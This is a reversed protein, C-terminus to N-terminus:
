TAEPSVGLTRSSLALAALETAMLAQSAAVIEVSKGFKASMGGRVKKFMIKGHRKDMPLPVATGVLSLTDPCDDPNDRYLLRKIEDRKRMFLHQLETHSSKALDDLWVSIDAVPSELLASLHAPDLFCSELDCGATVFAHAGCAKIKAEMRTKEEDTMFDRDRHIVVETEPAIEKIFSALLKAPELNSSSKYSFFLTAGMPFGTKEVLVRLLSMDSDETLFVWEIAGAMLRDFSDLAGIDMLLPLRELDLGQKFVKGEKLWVFNSDYQLADVLHRSHTSVIIQTSTESAIYQLARALLGQNDPHLHSDPEDLLLLRPSFLSVYSFIQLAQLVGTGVLELPCRRGAAGTTSIEVSLFVDMRPDFALWIHFKPFLGRMWVQLEDLKGKENILWLVNRLYLNADGSAVGRRVVSETRFQEAQPIGALGPVYISFLSDSSAVLAGLKPNGRRVCGVNGDNRARYIRVEYQSDGDDPSSASLRLFGFNAQNTYPSGHRLDEFNRAPCFLLSDQTYTDRGAERSAIAAIISFHIGQLVSSKGSNNGGVIVNLPHLDLEVKDVKKFKEVTLKTLRM